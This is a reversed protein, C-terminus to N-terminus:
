VLKSNYFHFRLHDREYTDHHAHVITLEDTTIMQKGSSIM